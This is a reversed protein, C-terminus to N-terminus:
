VPEGSSPPDITRGVLFGRRWADREPSPTAPDFPCDDLCAAPLRGARRGAVLAKAMSLAPDRSLQHPRSLMTVLEM